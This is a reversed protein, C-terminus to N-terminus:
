EITSVEAVSDFVNSLSDVVNNAPSNNVSCVMMLSEDELSATFFGNDNLSSLKSFILRQGNEVQMKKFDTSQSLYCSPLGHKLRVSVVGGSQIQKRASFHILENIWYVDKVTLIVGKINQDAAQALIPLFIFAITLIKLKM